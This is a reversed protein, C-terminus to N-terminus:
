AANLLLRLSAFRITIWFCIQHEVEEAMKDAEVTSWNDYSSLWVGELEMLETQPLSHIRQEYASLTAIIYIMLRRLRLKPRENDM